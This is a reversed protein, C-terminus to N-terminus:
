EGWGLFFSSKEVNVMMNTAKSITSLCDKFSKWEVITGRGFLLVDDLFILHNIQIANSIKIEFLRGGIRDKTILLNIGEM